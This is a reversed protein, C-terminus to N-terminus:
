RVVFLPCERRGHGRSHRGYAPEVGVDPRLEGSVTHAAGPVEIGSRYQLWEVVGRLRPSLPAGQRQHDLLGLSQGGAPYNRNSCLAYKEAFMLTQSAGDPFSAPVRAYAQPTILAGAVVGEGISPDSPCRYVDVATAFINNNAAFYNGAACSSKHLHG